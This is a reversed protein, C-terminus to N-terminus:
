KATKGKINRYLVPTNGGCVAELKHLKENNLTSNYRTLIIYSIDTYCKTSHFDVSLLNIMSIM